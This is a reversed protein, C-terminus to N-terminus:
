AAEEIRLGPGALDARLPEWTAPPAFDRRAEADRHVVLVLGAGGTVGGAGSIKAAGGSAEVRRIERVVSEPVVGLAELARESTRVADALRDFDGDRLANRASHTAADIAALADRLKLPDRKELRRVLAVMDGTTEGPAGSQFLRLGSLGARGLPLEEGAGDAGGRCWVVGGRMV